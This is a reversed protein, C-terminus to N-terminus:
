DVEMALVRDFLAHTISQDAGLHETVQWAKERSASQIRAEEVRTRIDEILRGHFLLHPQVIVGPQPQAIAWAIAEDLTPQAAALFCTRYDAYKSIDARSAAFQHVAAVAEDDSSGRGIFILLTEEIPFPSAALPSQCRRQSLNLVAPHDELPAAMQWQMDGYQSAAASIADPIDRKAHGAAFLLLPAAIFHRIGKDALARVGADINPEALELFCGGVHLQPMSERLQEVAQLFEAQGLADRTGHGVVLIGTESTPTEHTMNAM